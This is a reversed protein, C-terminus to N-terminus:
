SIYAAAMWSKNAREREKWKKSGLVTQRKKGTSGRNNPETTSLAMKKVAITPNEIKKIM